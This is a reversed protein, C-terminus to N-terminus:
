EGTAAIKAPVAYEQDRLQRRRIKGTPTKPLSDIFEIRRPYKYPATVRKVHEQIEKALAESGVVGPRLVVFVKVVEGREADPSAVAACEQVAPHESVANEVEAPGIRYGGSNILDDARGLYFLYGDVDLRVLDGSDFWTAGCAEVMAARTLEADNWYGLMMQPNPLRIMLRGAEGPALPRNATDFVATATGPLPRGMSGPKVAMAPYNLVTMLTETQGYGDLLKLGTRARWREIIEPNVTEGASIALRLSSLDRGRIDQLVLQRLETAAACFVSVRYKELLEFRKQADFRGNYFLVASGCSWPGFLISTGAKSWGTDTTCWMLDSATLAPWYWASVRWAFLARSAHTVGKPKGTSGSTYYIIAPEDAALPAPAFSEPQGDVGTGFDVWGPAAGVSVRAALKSAGEFKGVNASTTVAGRAGSHAICPIPIAGLKLAGVMTIQWEPLRPLMILIRDGRRLGLAALLNACRNSLRSIDGFTFRREAGTEDCWILALHDSNEAWHDVVDGGFNFHTPVELRFSRYTEHYDRM